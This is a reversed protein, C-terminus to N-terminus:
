FTQSQTEADTVTQKLFFDRQHHSSLASIKSYLLIDKPTLVVEQKYLLSACSVFCFVTM